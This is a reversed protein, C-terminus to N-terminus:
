EWGGAVLLGVQHIPLPLVLEDEPVQEQEQGMGFVVELMHVAERVVLETDPGVTDPVKSDEEEAIHVHHLGRCSGHVLVHDHVHICCCCNRVAVATHDATHDAAPVVIRVAASAVVVQCDIEAALV